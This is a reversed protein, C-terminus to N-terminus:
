AVSICSCWHMDYAAMSRSIDALLHNYWWEVYGKTSFHHIRTSKSVLKPTTRKRQRYIHEVLLLIREYIFEIFHEFLFGKPDKETSAGVSLYEPLSIFTKHIVTIVKHRLNITDIEQSYAFMAKSFHSPMRAACLATDSIRIYPM